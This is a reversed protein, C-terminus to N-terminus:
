RDAGHGGPRHAPGARRSARGAGGGRPGAPGGRGPKRAHALARAPGARHSRGPRRRRASPRRSPRSCTWGCGTSSGASPRPPGATTAPSPACSAPRRGTRSSRGCRRSATWGWTAPSAPMRGTTRGTRAPGRRRAVLDPNVPVVRCGAELLAEVLLGPRTEIVVRVEAPDPELAAVRALLRAMAPPEHCVDLEEDVGEGPRGLTVRHFEEAGDIGVALRVGEWAGGHDLRLGAATSISSDQRSSVRTPKADGPGGM